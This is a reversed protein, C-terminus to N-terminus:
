RQNASRETELMRRVPLPVHISHVWEGYGHILEFMVYMHPRTRYGDDTEFAKGEWVRMFGLEEFRKCSRWITTRDVGIRDAVYHPRFAGRIGQRSLLWDLLRREMPTLKLASSFYESSDPPFADEVTLDELRYNRMLYDDVGLKDIKGNRTETTWPYAIKANVGRTSLWQAALRTFYYVTPNFYRIGTRPDEFHESAIFDSDCVVYVTRAGKLLPLVGKLDKSEWTTVSTSSFVTHDTSLVADAKLSGELCFYVDQAELLDHPGAAYEPQAPHVDLHKPSYDPRYAYHIPRAGKKPDGFLVDHELRAYPPPVAAGKVDFRKIVVGGGSATVKGKWASVKTKPWRRTDFRMLRFFKEWDGAEFSLYRDPVADIVDDSIARTRLIESRHRPLLADTM